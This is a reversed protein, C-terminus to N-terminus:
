SKFKILIILFCVLIYFYTSNNRTWHLSSGEENSRSRLSRRRALELIGSKISNNRLLRAEEEEKLVKNLELKLVDLGKLSFFLSLDYRDKLSYFKKKQAELREEAERRKGRLLILEKQHKKFERKIKQEFHSQFAKTCRKHRSDKLDKLTQNLVEELNSM